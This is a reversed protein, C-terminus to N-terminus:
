RSDRAGDLTIWEIFQRMEDNQKATPQRPIPMGSHQARALQDAAAQSNGALSKLHSVYADIACDVGSLKLLGQKAWQFILKRTTEDHPTTDWPCAARLVGYPQTATRYLIITRLDNRYIKALVRQGVLEWANDFSGSRYRVYAYNVHPLDGTKRNGRVTVPVITSGMDPACMAGDAAEYFWSRDTGHMQLYQLPTLTGLSPHQTANYGTVIVEVLEEFWQLQIPCDDASFNSIRIKNDGLRTAPEFGGAVHRFAGRELRSFLQEIIPRTRPTHAVGTNLVGDYVRCFAQEIAHAHHAKANDMAVLLPRRGGFAPSLSSPMGAGIAYELGPLTLNRRAWPELARAFCVAVDLNNYAKGVRLCWSVIARSEAEVIALLWITSINRRVEGGNPMRVGLKAEIDIRHADFEFRDYCRHAFLDELTTVTSAKEDNAMATVSNSERMRRLYRLLARRGQDVQNLPYFAGLKQDKLEKVIKGFLQHFSRPVKQRKPLSHNYADVWGRIAPQAALLQEYSHPRAIEPMSAPEATEIAGRQYTGWAVCVRYGYPKGDPALKPAQCVMKRLRKPCLDYRRAVPTIAAGDLVGDLATEANNYRILAKSTLLSRDPKTWTAREDATVFPLSDAHAM